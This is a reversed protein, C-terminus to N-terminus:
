KHHSKRSSAPPGKVLGWKTTPKPALKVGMIGKEIDACLEDWPTIYIAPNLSVFYVHDPRTLL